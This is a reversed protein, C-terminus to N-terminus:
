KKIVFWAGVLNGNTDFYLRRSDYIGSDGYDLIVLNDDIEESEPYGWVDKVNEMSMVSSDICNFSETINSGTETKEELNCYGSDVIFKYEESEKYQSVNSVEYDENNTDSNHKNAILPALVFLILIPIICIAITIFTFINAQKDNKRIEEQKTQLFDSSFMEPKNALLWSSLDGSFFYFGVYEHFERDSAFLVNSFLNPKNTYLFKLIDFKNRDRLGWKISNFFDKPSNFQIVDDFYILMFTNSLIFNKYIKDDSNKISEFYNRLVMLKEYSKNFDVDKRSLLDKKVMSELDSDSLIANNNNKLRTLEESVEADFKAVEFLFVQLKEENM